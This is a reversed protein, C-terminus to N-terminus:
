RVRLVGSLNVNSAREAPAWAAVVITALGAAFAALSLWPRIQFAIAHGTAGYTSLNILYAIGVGAIVAPAMAMAGLILAQALIVKRIQGRTAAIARLLGFEIAQELVSIMLTNVVGFTAILLGLAVLGWLGAEVGSIMGDIDGQLESLSQVVLGHDRAVALLQERVKDIKTHDAKILYADVGGVQLHKEAVAYDMYLTLGGAHYDNVIAAVRFSPTGHETKLPVDDGRKLKARKALVSGVVIQGDTLQKSVESEDGDVIDFQQLSSGEYDRVILIANEDAVDVSVLRSADLSQVGDIKRLEEDLGDPLDAAMGTAMDPMTARIFFDAVMAKRYWDRIDETNDLVTNALGIAASAAIFVVGVTLTTRSRHVLLQRSAIRAETRLQRPLVRAVGGAITPLAVPLVLVLGVLGFVGAFVAVDSHLRGTISLALLAACVVVTVAGGVVLWRSAGEMEEGLVDRLAEIPALRSAKLAPMTAGLLSIGIGFLAAWAFPAFTLEIPPLDTAYISGMAGKLLHSIGIGLLSGLLTGGIGMATAESLVLTAVQGRTAGLARMIGLQRRRQTVSILFTNAIVFTAVLLIFARAMLLAQNTALVTEDAMASRGAPARLEANEPIQGAIAARVTAEDAAKDVVIQIVDLQKPARFWEQGNPLAMLLGAGQGATAATGGPKFLGVVKVSIRGSRTLLDVREGAKVGLNEALLEELLVEDGRSLPEGSVVEYDHVKRDRELDVAAAILQLREKNAYLLAPRQLRPAVAEVGPVASITAVLSDPISQGIPAAVELSARGALSQFIADFAGRTVTTTINVSVVAAVGIAVSALTLIARGPRKRAERFGLQRYVM